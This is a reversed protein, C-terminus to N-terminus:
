GNEGSQQRARRKASHRMRSRLSLVAIREREAQGQKKRESDREHKNKRGLLITRWLVGWDATEGLDVCLFFTDCTQVHDCAHVRTHGCQSSSVSFIMVCMYRCQEPKCFSHIVGTTLPMMGNPPLPAPPPMVRQRKAPEDDEFLVNTELQGKQAPRFQPRPVFGAGLDHPLPLDQPQGFRAGGGPMWLPDSPVPPPVLPPCGGGRGWQDGEALPKGM